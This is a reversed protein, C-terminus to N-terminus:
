AGDVLAGELLTADVLTWDFAAVVRMGMSAVVIDVTTGALGLV